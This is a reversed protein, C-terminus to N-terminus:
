IPDTKLKLLWGIITSIPHLALGAIVAIVYFRVPFQILMSTTLLTGIVYDLQDFPVWSKGPAINFRRKFFSKIADGGLAGFSLATAWLLLNIDSYDLIYVFDRLSPSVNYLTAQVAVALVAVLWGAVFGRITKHDGFLRRGRWSKGGDIPRDLEPM